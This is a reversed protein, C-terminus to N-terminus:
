VLVSALTSLYQFLITTLRLVSRFIVLYKCHIWKLSKELSPQHDKALHSRLYDDGDVDYLTKSLMGRVRAFSGNSPFRDVPIGILHAMLPYLDVNEFVTPHVYGGSRFRPGQAVFLPRMDPVSANYGHNGWVPYGKPKWGGNDGVIVDYGNKAVLFLDLLRRNGSYHYETPTDNSRYVKFNGAFLKEACRNLADKVADIVSINENKSLTSVPAADAILSYVPSVGYVKFRLGPYLKKECQEIHFVRDSRVEAMGHDSLFIVNTRHSLGEDFIRRRFYGVAVDILKVQEKVQESFPGFEHATSDPEPIYVFALNAPAIPDLLWDITLDVRSIWNMSKDYDQLYHVRSRNSGKNGTGDTYSAISGPWQMAGSFRVEPEYLQNAIYMPVSRNNMDWWFSSPSDVDFHGSPSEPDTFENNVIGHYPQYLGTVISQHNPYTKTVM